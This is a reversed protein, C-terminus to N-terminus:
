LRSTFVSLSSAVGDNQQVTALKNKHYLLFRDDVNKAGRGVGGGKEGVVM